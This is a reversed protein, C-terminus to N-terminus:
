LLGSGDRKKMIVDIKWVAKSMASDTVTIEVVYRHGLTVEGEDLGQAVGRYIGNSGGVYLLTIPFTVNVSTVTTDDINKLEATVTADDVFDGTESDVLNLVEFVMDNEIFYVDAPASGTM